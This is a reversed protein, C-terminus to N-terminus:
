GAPSGWGSLRRACDCRAARHRQERPAPCRSPSPAASAAAIWGSRRRAPRRRYPTPAALERNFLAIGQEFTAGGPTSADILRAPKIRPLPIVGPTSNDEPGAYTTGTEATEIEIPKAKAGAVFTYRKRKLWKEAKNWGRKRDKPSFKDSTVVPFKKIQKQNKPQKEKESM